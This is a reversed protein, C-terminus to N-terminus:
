ATMIVESVNGTDALCRQHVLVDVFAEAILVFCGNTCIQANVELEYELKDTSLGAPIAAQSLFDHHIITKDRHLDTQRHKYEVGNFQCPKFSHSV